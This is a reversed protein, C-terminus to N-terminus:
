AIEFRVAGEPLGARIEIARGDRVHVRGHQIRLAPQYPGVKAFWKCLVCELDRLGVLQFLSTGARPKTEVIVSKAPGPSAHQEDDPGAHACNSKHCLRCIM